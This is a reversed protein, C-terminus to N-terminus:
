ERVSLTFGLFTVRNGWDELVTLVYGTSGAEVQRGM